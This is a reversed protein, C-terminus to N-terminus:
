RLLRRRLNAARGPGLARQSVHFAVPGMIRMDRTFHPQKWVWASVGKPVAATQGMFHSCAEAVLPMGRRGSAVAATRYLHLAIELNDDPDRGYLHVREIAMVDAFYNGGVTQFIAEVCRDMKNLDELIDYATAQDGGLCFECAQNYAEWREDGIYDAHAKEAVLEGLVAGTDSLARVVIERDGQKVQTRM